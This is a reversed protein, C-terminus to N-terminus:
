SGMSFPGLFTTRDLESNQYWECSRVISVYFIAYQVTSFQVARVILQVPLEMSPICNAPEHMGQSDFRHIRANNAGIEVRPILMVTLTIQKCNVFIVLIWM